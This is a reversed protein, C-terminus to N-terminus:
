GSFADRRLAYVLTTGFAGTPDTRVHRAGLRRMVAISAANPGDTRVLIPDLGLTRFGHRLVARSADTAIGSGWRPRALGYYLEVDDGEPMARLGAFGAVDGDDRTEVVWFGFGRRAFSAVSEDVVARVTERSVVAGDWLYRRVDPDAWQARLVDLDRRDFPRLRLRPTLLIPGM